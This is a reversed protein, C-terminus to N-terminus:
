SRSALAIMAALAADKQNAGWPAGVSKGLHAIRETTVGAPLQLAAEARTPLEGLVAVVDEAAGRCLALWDTAM